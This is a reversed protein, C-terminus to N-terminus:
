GYKKFLLIGVAVIIISIIIILGLDILINSSSIPAGNFISTLANTVYYSPLFYAIVQTIPTIPVFTGFFMQPLIFIFSLGTAAGSSKAITATILGLGVSCISLFTIFIFAFLLGLVTGEPRFGLLFALIVVIVVQILSIITNSILHSGMFESSTTPTTNIRELLGEARDDSFSQAVIMIIFICAYAYLGPAMVEFQSVGPIGSNIGAFALGFVLTLMAPFLIMLFLYAPERLIKKLNLKVLALIRQFNM